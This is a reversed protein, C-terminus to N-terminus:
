ARSVVLRQGSGTLTLRSGGHGLQWAPDAGMLRTVWTDQAEAPPDCGMATGVFGHESDDLVLRDAQVALASGLQNCGGSWAVIDGDDGREFRVFPRTSPDFSHPEDGDYAAEATFHQGM